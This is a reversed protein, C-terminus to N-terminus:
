TASVRLARRKSLPRVRVFEYPGPEKFSERIYRGVPHYKFTRDSTSLLPWEPYTRRTDGRYVKVDKVETSLLGSLNGYLSRWQVGYIGEGLSLALLMDLKDIEMPMHVEYSVLGIPDDVLTLLRDYTAQMANTYSSGKRHESIVRPLPGMNMHPVREMPAMIYFDDNMLLFPDSVEPHNCAAAINAIGTDHKQKHPPVKVVEVGRVWVPADGFIFVREHPINKLSRLSYRLEENDDGPRCIYVVDM